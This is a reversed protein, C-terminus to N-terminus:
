LPDQPPLRCFRRVVNTLNKLNSVGEYKFGWEPEDGEFSLTLDRLSRGRNLIFALVETHGPAHLSVDFVQLRGPLDNGDDLLSPFHIHMRLERLKPWQAIAKHLTTDLLDYAKNHYYFHKDEYLYFKELLPSGNGVCKVLPLFDFIELSKLQPFRPATINDVRLMRSADGIRLMGLGEATISMNVLHIANM